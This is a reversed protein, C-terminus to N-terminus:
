RRFDVVERKSWQHQMSLGIDRQKEEWLKMTLYKYLYVDNGNYNISHDSDTFTRWDAQEPGLGDGSLLDLLAASNQYHVNDDGTGHMIAFGGPANKFGTTDRISSINYGAANTEPTRMYRETYQEFTLMISALCNNSCSHALFWTLESCRFRM